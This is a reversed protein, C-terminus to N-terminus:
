FRIPGDACFHWKEVGTATDFATMTDTRSSGIFLTKGAVIPEDVIDFPMKPQDPWAPRPAPLERVWQLHLEVPLEQPTAASRRVDYRWTPWDGAYVPSTAACFYVSLGLVFCFRM